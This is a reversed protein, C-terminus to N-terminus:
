FFERDDGGQKSDRIRQHLNSQELSVGLGDSTPSIAQSFRGTLGMVWLLSLLNSLSVNEGKEIAIVVNRSCGARSALDAQKLKRRKRAVSIAQGIEKLEITVDIPTITQKKM